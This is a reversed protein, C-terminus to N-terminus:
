LAVVYELRVTRSPGDIISSNRTLDEMSFGLTIGEGISWRLGANLYGTGKGLADEADDNAALNYELVVSISPGLTKEMGGFFNIDNDGDAREFTYNVGLHVSLYGLFAYNKSLVAFLGPSKIVYRDADKLYGNKGQSDFGLVIAPLGVTEDLPRLRASFGPMPNMTASGTGIIGTGGYSIGLGLRDVIGFSVGVLLGGERYFEADLCFTGGRLMGATPAHVLFRPEVEGSSGASGQGPAGALPIVLLIALLSVRPTPM